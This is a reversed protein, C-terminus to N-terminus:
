HERPRNLFKSRRLLPLLIFYLALAPLPALVLWALVGRLATLGFDHLFHLPAQRFQQLMSHISFQSRPARTLWEGVRIFFYICAIHLPYVSYNVIQMMPQNLRLVLAVVFCLLTTTGLVPFLGLAAGVAITLAIKEPTIGQRLQAILVDVVRHQWFERLMPDRWCSAPSTPPHITCTPM